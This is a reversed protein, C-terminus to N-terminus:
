ACLGSSSEVSRGHSLSDQDCGPLYESRPHPNTGSDNKFLGTAYSLFHGTSSPRKLVDCILHIDQEQAMVFNGREERYPFTNPQHM